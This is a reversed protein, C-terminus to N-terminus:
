SSPEVSFRFRESPRRALERSCEDFLQGVTAGDWSREALWDGQDDLGYEDVLMLVLEALTFSDCGLDEIVRTERAIEDPPVRALEGVQGAFEEWGIKEGEDSM